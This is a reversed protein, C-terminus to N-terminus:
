TQFTTSNSHSDYFTGFIFTGTVCDDICRETQAVFDSSQDYFVHFSWLFPWLMEHFTQFFFLALAVEEPKIQRTFLLKERIKWSM